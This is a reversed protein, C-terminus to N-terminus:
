AKGAELIESLKKLDKRNAKKMAMAMLPALFKSFGSPHGCNRLTMKTKNEDVTEWTYTTEMPFPSEATKMVLIEGPIFRTIEYTYALERGLFRARFAIQSGTVLPRPTKWEVSQINVYWQPAHDPDAAYAAVRTKPCDIIIETSVDVM